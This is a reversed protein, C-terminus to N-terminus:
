STINFTDVYEELGGTLYICDPFLVEYRARTSPDDGKQVVTVEPPRKRGQAARLFLSRVAIDEPPFSYGILVWTRARRLLELSNRWIELLNVERVDRVLSPTVLVPRLPSHSCHCTTNETRRPSYGYGGIAGRLNVYVHDCLGCKLWNVSGHLKYLRLRPAAPRDHLEGSKPDRWTFGFDFLEHDYNWARVLETEISLDYNTSVIAPPIQASQALTSLAEAWRALLPPLDDRTYPWWLVDYIAQELLTRLRQLDAPTRRRLPSTSTLLSYDILSLIDTILPLESARELGPLLAKLDEGLRKASREANPFGAFLDGTGIEKWIKPLIESTLPFGFPKSAGAGLFFVVAPSLM